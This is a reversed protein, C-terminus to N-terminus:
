LERIFNDPGLEALVKQLEDTKEIKLFVQTLAKSFSILGFTRFNQIRAKLMLTLYPSCNPLEIGM